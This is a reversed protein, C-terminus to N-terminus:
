YIFKDLMDDLYKQYNPETEKFLPGNNVQFGQKWFTVNIPKPKANPKPPEVVTKEEPSPDPDNKKGL